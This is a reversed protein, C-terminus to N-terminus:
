KKSLSLVTINLFYRFVWSHLAIGNIALQFQFLCKGLDRFFGLKITILNWIKASRKQPNGTHQDLFVSIQISCITGICIRKTCFDKIKTQIFSACKQRSEDNELSM